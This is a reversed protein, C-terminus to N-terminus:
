KDFNVGLPTYTDYLYQIGESLQEKSLETLSPIDPIFKDGIQIRRVPFLNKKFEIHLALINKSNAPVQYFQLIKKLMVFWKKQQEYTMLEQVKSRNIHVRSLKNERIFSEINELVMEDVFAVELILEMTDMNFSKIKGLVDM